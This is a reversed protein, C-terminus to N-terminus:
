RSSLFKGFAGFEAMHKKLMNGRTTRPFSDIMDSDQNVILFDGYIGIKRLILRAGLNSVSAKSGYYRNLIKLVSNRAAVAKKYNKKAGGIYVHVFPGRVDLAKFNDNGYGTKYGTIRTLERAVIRPEFTKAKM